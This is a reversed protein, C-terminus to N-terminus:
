GTSGISTAMRARMGVLFQDKDGLSSRFRNEPNAPYGQLNLLLHKGGIAAQTNKADRTV